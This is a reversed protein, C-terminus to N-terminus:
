EHTGGTTTASPLLFRDQPKFDTKMRPFKPHHPAHCDVCNNKNQPGRSRDWYGSMGGHVGREYDRMQAGHCQACLQMVNQYDVKTGDALQLRNYDQASHCSLCSISGHTLNIHRHFEKLDSSQKNQFNPPRTAHCTACEVTVAQGQLDLMGTQVRPTHLPQRVVVPHLESSSTVPLSSTSLANESPKIKTIIAPHGDPDTASQFNPVPVNSISLVLGGALLVLIALIGGTSFSGKRVPNCPCPKNPRVSSLKFPKQLRALFSCQSLRM